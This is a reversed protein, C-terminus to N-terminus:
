FGVKKVLELPLESATGDDRRVIESAVCSLTAATASVRAKGHSVPGRPDAVVLEFRGAVASTGFSAAVGPAVGSQTASAVLRDEADFIELALSMPKDGVNTCTVITDAKGAEFYVPGMRYIVRGAAGDFSPPPSDLLGAAAAHALGAAVALASLALTRQKL